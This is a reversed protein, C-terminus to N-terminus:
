SKLSIFESLLIILWFVLLIVFMFKEVFLSKNQKYKDFEEKILNANENHVFFVYNLLGSLVFLSIFIEKEYEKISSLNFKVSITLYAMGLDLGTIIGLLASAKVDPDDKHTM